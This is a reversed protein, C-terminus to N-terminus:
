PVFVRLRVHWRTSQGPKLTVMGTDMKGWEKGFPDAFNYQHEIAVFKATPPAYAQITKIEPSLGQIEVGYHAAPDIVKVTIAGDQWTLHSWNDDFFEKGLTKGDAARLDYRTGEVPLLRGTPFVNDYGDVEALESGPIHLRAQTRDGSPLNFYPHWGIAIPEAEGGVNHATISADVAGATLTITIVLDTKSLWHGGFNGAHIVGTVQEGGATKTVRIDDTKAKLILGHM